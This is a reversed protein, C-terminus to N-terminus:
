RKFLRPSQRNGQEDDFAIQDRPKINHYNAIMNSPFTRTSTNLAQVRAIYRNRTMNCQNETQKLEKQLSLFNASSAMNPVSEAVALLRTMVSGMGKQAEVFAQIQETTPNDPLKIQGIRSRMEANGLVLDKEQKTFAEVTSQLNTFLDARKQYCSAIQREAATVAEDKSQLGNYTGWWIAGVLLILSTVIIGFVGTSNM